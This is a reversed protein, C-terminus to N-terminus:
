RELFMQMLHRHMIAGSPIDKLIVTKNRDLLYLSPRARMDYLREGSIHRGGDYGHMWDRPLDGLHAHWSTINEDPYVTVVRLEGSAVLQQVIQSGMLDRTTQDCIPCDIDIFYLMIYDADIQHLRVVRGSSLTIPIDSATEGARNKLATELQARPRIKYVEDLADWAIITELVSIYLDENRYPSNPEHLYHEMRETFYDHVERNARAREMFGAIARRSEVVPAQILMALYNAFTQETVEKGIYVTDAFNMNDWYHNLMWVGATYPDTLMAPPRPIEIRLEEPATATQKRGGGGCATIAVSFVVIASIIAAFLINRM